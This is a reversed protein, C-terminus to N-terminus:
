TRRGLRDIKSFIPELYRSSAIVGASVASGLLIGGIVDLPYHNGVYIRSYMVLIAEIALILSFIIQKDRNFRLLLIFSGAAVITAHGSPFSPDTENVLVNDSSLPTPRPRDIEDKLITGTPILILFSIVLLVGARRGDRKGFIFVIATASIWVIERGYETFDVMIQNLIKNDPNNMKSFLGFDWTTIQSNDFIILSSLIAFGAFLVISTIGYKM